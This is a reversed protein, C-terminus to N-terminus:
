DRVLWREIVEEKPKMLSLLYNTAPKLFSLFLPYDYISPNEKNYRKKEEVNFDKKFILAGQNDFLSLSFLLSAKRDTYYSRLFEYRNEDKQFKTTVDFNKLDSVNYEFVNILLLNDSLLKLNLNRIEPPNEPCMKEEYVIYFPVEGILQEKIGSLLLPSINKDKSQIVLGVRDIKSTDIEPPIIKEIRIKEAKDLSIEKKYSLTTDNKEGLYEYVVSLNNNIKSSNPSISKAKELYFRAEDWLNNKICYIAYNNLLSEERIEKYCSTTLFIPLLSLLILTNQIKFQLKSKQSKVKSRKENM